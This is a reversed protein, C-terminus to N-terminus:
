EGVIKGRAIVHSWMEAEPGLSAIFQDRTQTPMQM